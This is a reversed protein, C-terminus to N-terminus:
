EERFINVTLTVQFKKEIEVYRAFHQTAKHYEFDAESKYAEVLLLEDEHNANKFFEYRLCGPEEYVSEQVKQERIERLMAECQGDHVKYFVNLFVM